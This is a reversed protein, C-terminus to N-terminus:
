CVYLYFFWEMNPTIHYSCGSDLIWADTFQTTSISLMDGDSCDSNENQVVNVTKSSADHKDDLEKIWKPCDRKMHGPEKCKYCRFTNKDRSKSRSNRRGSGEKESKRKNDHNGKVYLGDDHSSECTNQMRQNHALLAAIIEEVKITEKGYTLTTVMHEYSSPLSYLLVMAKDEDEIKVDLQTLDTIIQNFINVHQALEQGEQM